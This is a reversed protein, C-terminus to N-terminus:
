GFLGGIGQIINRGAGFASGWPMASQNTAGLMQNYQPSSWVNAQNQTLNSALEQARPGYQSRRGKAADRRSLTKQMQKAYPSDPSYLQDLRDMQGQYAKQTKRAGRYDKYAGLGGLVGKTLQGGPGTTAKQVFDQLTGMLDSGGVQSGIQAAFDAPNAGMSTPMMQNMSQGLYDGVNADNNLLGGIGGAAGSGVSTGLGGTMSPGAFGAMNSGGPFAQAAGFSQGGGVGPYSMGGFLGGGNGLGGSSGLLGGTGSSTSGLTDLGGMMGTGSSGLRGMGSFAGLNAGAGAFSLAMGLPNENAMNMIGSTMMAPVQWPGPIFSGITAATSLLSDFSGFADGIFSFADDIFGCM